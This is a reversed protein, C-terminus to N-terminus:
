TGRTYLKDRCIPKYLEENLLMAQVDPHDRYDEFVKICKELTDILDPYPNFRQFFSHGTTTPIATMKEFAIVTNTDQEGREGTLISLQDKLWMYISEMSWLENVLAILAKARDPYYIWMTQLYNKLELLIKKKIEITVPDPVLDGSTLELKSSDITIMTLINDAQAQTLPRIQPSNKKSPKTLYSGILTFVDKPLHYQRTIAERNELWTKLEPSKFYGALAVDDYATLGYVKKMIPLQKMTYKNDHHRDHNAAIRYCLEADAFVQFMHSLSDESFFFYFENLYISSQFLIKAVPYRQNQLSATLAPNKGDGIWDQSMKSLKLIDMVVDVHGYQAAAVLAFMYLKKVDAHFYFYFFTFIKAVLGKNGRQAAAAIAYYYDERSGSYYGNLNDRSKRRFSSYEKLAAVVLDAHGGLAAGTIYAHHLELEPKEYNVHKYLERYFNVTAIDGAEAAGRVIYPAYARLRDDVLSSLTDLLQRHRGKAAGEFAHAIYDTFNGIGISLILEIPHNAAAAGKVADSLDCDYHDILFHISDVDGDEGLQELLTKHTYHDPWSFLYDQKICANLYDIDRSRVANLVPTLYFTLTNIVDSESAAAIESPSVIRAEM